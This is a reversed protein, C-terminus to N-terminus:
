INGIDKFQVEDGIEIAHDRCFFANVELVYQSPKDISHQQSLPKANEVWGAVRMDRGIFIMDLPIYTNKMVFIQKKEEDFIFLMGKNRELSKRYMLGLNREAASRAIEVLVKVRSGDKKIIRVEPIRAILDCGSLFITVVFLLTIKQFWTRNRAPSNM